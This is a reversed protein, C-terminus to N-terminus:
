KGKKKKAKTTSTTTTPPAGPAVDVTRGVPLLEVWTRGPTLVIPAGDADFFKTPVGPYIRSWRGRILQGNSFVYADGSGFSLGEAGKPYPIVQVIVNTPTVQTQTFTSGVAFFPGSSGQFRLWGKRKADWVYTVDYGQDFNVHFSLIPEGVFEAEDDKDFYTFMPRPPVPQGGREFLSASRAFLNHPAYRGSDRFFTDGANNEDVWVLGTARVGAVNPSTGGSYAVVGGLPKVIPPDMARVSRVPGINDPARSNFVAWFRTIGGEVVEEYVIDAVDLGSQPRADPSNEIKVAVSSRSNALGEPDPLGTFPAIPVPITTTTTSPEPKPKPAARKDEGSCAGVTLALAAGLAVFRVKFAVQSM